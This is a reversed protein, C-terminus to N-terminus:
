PLLLAELAVATSFQPSYWEITIPGLKAIFLSDLSSVFAIRSNVSIGKKLRIELAKILSKIKQSRIDIPWLKKLVSIYEALETYNKTQPRLLLSQSFELVQLKANAMSSSLCVNKEQHYMAKAYATFFQSSRNYWVECSRTNRNAITQNILQCSQEFGELTSGSLKGLLSQHSILATLINLNVVCDVDNVGQFIRSNEDEARDRDVWTLFANSNAPKWLFDNKYQVRRNSDTFMGVTKEFSLLYDPHKQEKLFWMYVNASADLDNPVNFAKLYRYPIDASFSRIWKGSPTQILPWYAITGPLENSKQADELYLDLFSNAEETINEFNPLQYIDSINKIALLTQTTVFSNSELSKINTAKFRSFSPWSGKTRIVANDKIQTTELFHWMKAELEPLPLKAQANSLLLVLFTFVLCNKIRVEFLIRALALNISSVRKTFPALLLSVSVNLIRTM